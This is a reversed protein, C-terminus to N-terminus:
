ITETTTAFTTTATNEEDNEAEKAKDFIGEYFGWLIPKASDEWFEVTFDGVSTIASKIKPHDEAFSQVDINWYILASIVVIAIVIIKTM